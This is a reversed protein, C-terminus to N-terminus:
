NCVAACVQDLKRRELLSWRQAEANVIENGHVGNHGKVKVFTVIIHKALLTTFYLKALARIQPNNMAWRQSLWGIVMKSDTYITLNSHDPANYVAQYVAYLETENNTAYPM